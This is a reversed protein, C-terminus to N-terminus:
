NIRADNVIRVGDADFCESHYVPREIIKQIEVYKVKEKQEQEAKLQQYGVSALYMSEYKKIAQKQQEAVCEAKAKQYGSNYRGQGYLLLGVVLAVVAAFILGTKLKM